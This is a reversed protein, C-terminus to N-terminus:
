PTLTFVLTQYSCTLFCPRPLIKSYNLHKFTNWTVPLHLFILFSFLLLQSNLMNTVNIFTQTSHHHVHSLLSNTSLQQITLCSFTQNIQDKIKKGKIRTEAKTKSYFIAKNQEHHLSFKGYLSFTQLQLFSFIM